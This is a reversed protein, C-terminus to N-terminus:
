EAPNAAKRRGKKVIYGKDNRYKIVWRIIGKLTDESFYLARGAGQEAKFVDKYRNVWTDWTGKPIPARSEDAARIATNVFERAEASTYLGMFPM